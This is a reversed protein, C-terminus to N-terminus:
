PRRLIDNGDISALLRRHEHETVSRVPTEPVKPSRLSRAPDDCDLAESRWRYFARLGRVTVALTAPAVEGSREALFAHFDLTSCEGLPQHTALLRLDRCYNEVTKPAYGMSRWYSTFAALLKRDETSM